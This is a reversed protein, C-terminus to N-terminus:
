FGTIHKESLGRERCGPFEPGGVAECLGGAVRSPGEGNAPGCCVMLMNFSCFLSRVLTLPSCVGGQVWRKRPPRPSAGVPGKALAAKAGLLHRVFAVPDGLQLLLLRGEDLLEKTGPCFTGLVAVLQIGGKNLRQAGIM